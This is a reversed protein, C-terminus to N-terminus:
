GKVGQLFDAMKLLRTQVYISINFPMELFPISLAYKNWM